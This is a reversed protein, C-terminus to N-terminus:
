KKGYWDKNFVGRIDIRGGIQHPGFLHVDGVVRVWDKLIIGNFIIADGRVEVEGVVRAGYYVKSEDFIWCGGEQSLNDESEVFGGKDGKRVDDRFNDLAEIRYLTTHDHEITEDTLKYKLKM